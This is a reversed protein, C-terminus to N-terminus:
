LEPEGEIPELSIREGLQVMKLDQRRALTRGVRVVPSAPVPAETNSAPTPGFFICLAKGQPWYAVDGVKLEMCAGSASVKFGLDFYIEDGWTSVVSNVPLQSFIERGAQSDFFEIEFTRREAKCLARM